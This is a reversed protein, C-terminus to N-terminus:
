SLINNNTTYETHTSYKYCYYKAILIHLSFIGMIFNSKAKLSNNNFTNLTQTRSTEYGPRTYNCATSSMILVPNVPSTVTVSVLFVSAERYSTETLEGGKEGARAEEKREKEGARAEEKREKEGAWVELDKRWRPYSFSREIKDRKSSWERRNKNSEREREHREIERRRVNERKRGQEHEGKREQGPQERQEWAWTLYREM